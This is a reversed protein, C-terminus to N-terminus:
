GSCEPLVTDTHITTLGTERYVRELRERLDRDSVPIVQYGGGSSGYGRLNWGSGAWNEYRESRSRIDCPDIQIKVPTELTSRPRTRDRSNFLICPGLMVCLGLVFGFVASPSRLGPKRSMNSWRNVGAHGGGAGRGDAIEM